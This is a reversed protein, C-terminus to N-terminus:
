IPIGTAYKVYRLALEMCIPKIVAIKQAPIIDGVAFISVINEDKKYKDNFSYIGTKSNFVKMKEFEIM